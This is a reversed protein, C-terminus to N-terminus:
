DTIKPYFSFYSVNRTGPFLFLRSWFIPYGSLFSKIYNDNLKLFPSPVPFSFDNGNDRGDPRSLMWRLLSLFYYTSLGQQPELLLTNCSPRQWPTTWRPRMLAVSSLFSQNVSVLFDERTVFFEQLGTLLGTAQCFSALVWQAWFGSFFLIKYCNLIKIAM